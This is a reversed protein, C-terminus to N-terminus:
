QEKGAHLLYPTMELNLAGNVEKEIVAPQYIDLGASSEADVLGIMNAQILKEIYDLFSRKRLEGEKQLEGTQTGSKKSWHLINGRGDFVLTGGCLLPIIQGRFRGFREDELIVDEKWVYELIIERPLKQRGGGIKDTYYLDVVEFDQHVPIDLHGRNDNLFNYAATRSNAISDINYRWILSTISPVKEVDLKKLGRKEFVERVIEQYGLTDKPYALKNAHLVAQAYDIFQIDVPPCFDLARFALRTVHDTAKWLAYKPSRGNEMHLTTLLSIIKFMAGTLVESCDHPEWLIKIDNLTKENRATRLYYRQADGYAEKIEDQAFQEALDSIVDSEWIKGKSINAVARRVNNNRLASLIATLDALFEHFAATQVSSTLYYYPRIGDLIAHGTEHTVIDHSLCTYVPEGKSFFYYFQLSKSRRDYFANRMVGAHPIVILRNGDFSWPIPRGMVLPDEFFALTNQVVAWVNVQHFQFSKPDDAGVFAKKEGDWEVPKALIGTETNYDVVAVRANTPGDMLGPEWDIDIAEIGLIGEEKHKNAVLPDQVFINVPFTLGLKKRDSKELNISIEYLKKGEVSTPTM